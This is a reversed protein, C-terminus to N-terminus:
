PRNWEATGLVLLVAALLFSTAFTGSSWDGGTSVVRGTTLREWLPGAVLLVGLAVALMAAAKQTWYWLM